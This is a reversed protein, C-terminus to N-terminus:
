AFWYQGASYRISLRPRTRWVCKPSPSYPRVSCSMRESSPARPVVARCTGSSVGLAATAGCFAAVEREPPIARPGGPHTAGLVLSGIREPDRLAIQQAVMGGLSFGYVHAREVCAADLVSVADDAM